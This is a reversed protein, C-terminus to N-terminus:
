QVSIYRYYTATGNEDKYLHYNGNTTNKYHGDDNNNPCPVVHECSINKIDGDEYGAGNIGLSKFEVPIICDTEITLNISDTTIGIYSNLDCYIITGNGGYSEFDSVERFNVSMDSEILSESIFLDDTDITGTARVSAGPLMMIFADAHVNGMVIVEADPNFRIIVSELDGEFETYGANFIIIDQGDVVTREMTPTDAERGLTIEQVQAQQKCEDEGCSFATALLLLLLKKM